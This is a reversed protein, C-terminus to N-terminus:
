QAKRSLRRRRNLNDAQTIECSMSIPERRVGGGSHGGFGGGDISLSDWGRSLSLLTSLHFDRDRSEGNRNRQTLNKRFRGRREGLGDASEKGGSGGEFGM